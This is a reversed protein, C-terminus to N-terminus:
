RSGDFLFAFLREPESFDPVIASAGAELLRNRKWDNVGGGPDAENTAVGVAYGGVASVNEIEVFGDGFGLLESGMFKNDKILRDIVVAKPDIVLEESRTKEDDQAGCIGGDFFSTLQLLEAEEKLDPDDTSSALYLKIGADQLLQLFRRGGPVLYDDPQKLGQTLSDIRSQIREDLRRLYEDKYRIAELPVGGRDKVEQVLQFCQFITQKGTTKDIFERVIKKITAPSEKQPDAVENLVECFYHVMVDRWGERILSLTGDFDFLAAQFKQSTQPKEIIEIYNDNQGNSM